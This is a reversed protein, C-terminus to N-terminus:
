LNISKTLIKQTGRKCKEGKSTKVSNVQDFRIEDRIYTIATVQKPINIKM